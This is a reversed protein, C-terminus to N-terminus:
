RRGGKLAQPLVNDHREYEQLPCGVAQTAFAKPYSAKLGTAAMRAAGHPHTSLYSHLEVLESGTILYQEQTPM